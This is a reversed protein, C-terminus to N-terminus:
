ASCNHYATLLWRGDRRILTWTAIVWGDAPPETEGAMVVAGRSVVVATDTTPFRVLQPEDVAHSDRLPGAFGAAMSARVAERGINVVGRVISTADPDYDAIFADADNASWARYLNNLVDLVAERDSQVATDTM